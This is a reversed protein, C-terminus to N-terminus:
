WKDSEFNAPSWFSSRWARSGPVGQDPVKSFHLTEAHGDIFIYNCRGDHWFASPYDHGSTSYIYYSVQPGKLPEGVMCSRAPRKAKGLYLGAAQPNLGWGYTKMGKSFPTLPRCPCALKSVTRVLANSTYSGGFTVDYVVNDLNVYPAVMGHSFSESYWCKCGSFWKIGNEWYTVIRDVNDDAYLLMGTGLTRANNSCFTAQAKARAKSLAPLLMSALVAIIAIVVLLEILTFRKRYFM